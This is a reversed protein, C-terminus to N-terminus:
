ASFWFWFRFSKYANYLMLLVTYVRAEPSRLAVGYGAYEPKWRASASGSSSPVRQGYLRQSPM